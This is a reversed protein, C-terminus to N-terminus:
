PEVPAPVCTHHLQHGFTTLSLLLSDGVARSWFIISIAM